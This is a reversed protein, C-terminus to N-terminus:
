CITRSLSDRAKIVEQGSCLLVGDESAISARTASILWLTDRDILATAPGCLRPLVALSDPESDNVRPCV